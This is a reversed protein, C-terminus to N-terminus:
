QASREPTKAASPLAQAGAPNRSTAPRTATGPVPPASAAAASAAQAEGQGERAYAKWGGVGAVVDNSERWPTLPQEAFPRYGEFASKYIARAPLPESSSPTSSRASPSTASGSEIPQSQAIGIALALLVPVGIGRLPFAM